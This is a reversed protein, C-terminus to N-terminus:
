PGGLKAVQRVFRALGDADPPSATVTRQDGAENLICADLRHRSLDLGVHMM